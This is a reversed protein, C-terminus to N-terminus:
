ISVHRTTTEGGPALPERLREDSGRPNRRAAGFAAVGGGFWRRALGSERAIKRWAWELWGERRERRRSPESPEFEGEESEDEASAVSYTPAMLRAVAHTGHHPIEEMVIKTCSMIPVALVAGVGGWVSFWFVLSLLIVVESLDLGKRYWVPGLIDGVLFSGLGPIFFGCWRQTTTLDPLLVLLPVPIVSAAASGLNPIFFLWFSVVAISTSLSGPVGCAFILLGVLTARVASLAVMIMVFRKVAQHIRKGIKSRRGEPTRPPAVLFLVYFLCIGADGVYTLLNNAFSTWFSEDKLTLEVQDQLTHWSALAFDDKKLLRLAVRDTFDALDNVRAIFRDNWEKKRWHENIWQESLYLAWVFSASVLVVLGIAFPLAVLRPVVITRPHWPLRANWKRLKGRQYRADSAFDVFPRLILSLGLAFVLPRLLYALHELFWCLCCAAICSVGLLLLLNDSRYEAFSYAGRPADGHYSSTGPDSNVDDGLVSDARASSVPDGPM